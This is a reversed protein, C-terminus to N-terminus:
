RWRSSSRCRPVRGTGGSSRCARRSSRSSGCSAPSPSVGSGSLCEERCASRVFIRPVLALLWFARPTLRRPDKSEARVDNLEAAMDARSDLTARAALAATRLASATITVASRIAWIVELNDQEIARLAAYGQTSITLQLLLDRRRQRVSYLPGMRLTEAATRDREALSEIREELLDDLRGALVAYQRLGQIGLWLAREEQALFANDTELVARDADLARVLDQAREDIRAVVAAAERGGSRARALREVLGRALDRLDRLNRALPAREALANEVALVPRDGFRAAIETTARIEREGLREIAGMARRSTGKGAQVAPLSEVFARAMSEIRAALEPDLDLTVETRLRDDADAAATEVGDDDPKPM